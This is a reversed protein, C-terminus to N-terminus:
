MSLLKYAQLFANFTSKQRIRERDGSFNYEYIHVDELIKIGICVLGVPKNESENPGANGTVSICVDAKTIESLGKVMESAVERSVVGFKSVTENSVKVNKIKSENSYTVFSEKFCTSASPVSVFREALMGGTCSEVFSITFKKKTLECFLLEEIKKDGEAYIFEGVREYVKAKLPAILKKGEDNNKCKATIRLTLDDNGMYPALTPNQNNFLDTLDKNIEGENAGVLRLVESYYKFTTFQKLYNEVFNNFMNHLEKPPGPLNIIMKGNSTTIIGPATGFNNKIFKSGEPIYAQKLNAGTIDERKLNLFNELDKVCEDNIALNKNFYKATVEKTIDDDTPGLGGTTIILNMGRDFSNKFSTMIREFNDGVTTHYYVSVGIESLKTSLFKFNTNVIDGLLLESGVCIIECKLNEM